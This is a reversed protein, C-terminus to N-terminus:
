VIALVYPYVTASFRKFFSSETGSLVGLGRGSIGEENERREPTVRKVGVIKKKGERGLGLLM